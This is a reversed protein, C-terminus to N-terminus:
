YWSAGLSKNLWYKIFGDTRETFLWDLLHPNELVHQQRTQPTINVSQFDDLLNHFQPWHYEACSLTFFITPPGEQAITARLDEKAKHCYSNSGTVNKAYHMLKSMLTSYNNSQLMQQLQEVTLKADGPNQKLFISGQSLPRHRQIMNFAWYAFRPHSAFRYTWKGNENLPNSNRSPWNFKHKQLLEDTILQKQPKLAVPNIITSSLETGDNFPIEDVDLPGRDPDIDYNKNNDTCNIQHIDMPIGDSPLSALCEYDITTNEYLPNHKVLWHLSCNVNERRVTLEKFTNDKGKVSLVIVPLENPYRPLSNAFEQIDQSFNICHGKYAKQGGPFVRAILMEELQTLDKLEKPVQSPIMNNQSSFKKIDNKDRSCRSCIYPTKKNGKASLPWAEHCVECKYIKFNISNHFDQMNKIAWKQLHISGNKVGDFQSLFTEKDLDDNLSTDVLVINRIATKRKSEILKEKSDNDNMKKEANQQTHM